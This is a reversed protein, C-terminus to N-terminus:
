ITMIEKDKTEATGDIKANFDDIMKNLMSEADYRDDESIKGAKEMGQIEEWADRRLTRLAVKVEESMQRLKKSLEKRREETMPPIALRIASGDNVPNLGVDSL